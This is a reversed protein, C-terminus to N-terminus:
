TNPSSCSFWATCKSCVHRPGINLEYDCKTQYNLRQFAGLIWPPLRQKDEQQTGTRKLDNLGEGFEEVLSELNYRINTQQDRDIQM